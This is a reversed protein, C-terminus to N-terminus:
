SEEPPDTESPTPTPEILASRLHVGYSRSITGKGNVISGSFGDNCKIEGIRLKASRTGFLLAAAEVSVREPVIELFPILGARADGRATLLIFAECTDTKIRGTAFRLLPDVVAIQPTDICEQRVISSGSRVKICSRWESFLLATDPDNLRSGFSYRFSVEGQLGNAVSVGSGASSGGVFDGIARAANTIVVTYHQGATGIGAGFVGLVLILPLAVFLAGRIPRPM